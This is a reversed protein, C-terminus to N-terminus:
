STTFRRAARIAAEKFSTAPAEKDPMRAGERGTRETDNSTSQKRLAQKIEADLFAAKNMEEFKGRLSFNQNTPDNLAEIVAGRDFKIGPYKENKGNFEKELGQLEKEFREDAEKQKQAESKQLDYQKLNEEIAPTVIQKILERVEPAVHKLADNQLAKDVNDTVQTKSQEKLKRYDELEKKMQANEQSRRTFEKQLTSYEGHLTKGDVKRGGAIEFTSDEKTQDSQEKPQEEQNDKVETTDTTDSETTDTDQVQDTKEEDM